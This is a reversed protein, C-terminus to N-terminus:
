ETEDLLCLREGGGEGKKSLSSARCSASRRFQKLFDACKERLVLEKSGYFKFLELNQWLTNRVKTKSQTGKTM